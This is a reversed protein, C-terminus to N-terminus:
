EKFFHNKITTEIGYIIKYLPFIIFFAGLRNEKGCYVYILKVKCPKSVLSIRKM